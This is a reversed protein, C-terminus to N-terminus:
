EVERLIKEIAAIRTQIEDVSKSLNHQEQATIQQADTLQEALRRYAEEREVSMRARRTTFSQWIVVVILITILALLGLVFLMGFVTIYPVDM